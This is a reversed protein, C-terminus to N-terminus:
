ANIVPQDVLICIGAAAVMGSAGSPKIAVVIQLLGAIGRRLAAIKVRFEDRIEDLFLFDGGALNFAHATEEDCNTGPARLVLVRPAPM